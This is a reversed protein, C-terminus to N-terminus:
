QSVFYDEVREAADDRDSRKGSGERAGMSGMLEEARRSGARRQKVAGLSNRRGGEGECTFTEQRSREWRFSGNHPERADYQILLYMRRGDVDEAFPRNGGEGQKGRRKPTRQARGVEASLASIM